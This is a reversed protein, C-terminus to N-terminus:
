GAEARDANAHIADRVYGSLGPAVVDYHQSFRPDAVYMEGLGRHVEYPCDYYWRSIHQRHQEALEMTEGAAAPVGNALAAALGANIAEAEARIQLWTARDYQAVRRQTERFM